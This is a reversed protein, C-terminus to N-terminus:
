LGEGKEQKKIEQIKDPYKTKLYGNVQDKSKEDMQDYRAKLNKKIEEQKKPDGAASMYQIAQAAIGKQDLVMGAMGPIGVSPKVPRHLPDGQLISSIAAIGFGAGVCMAAVVIYLPLNMEQIWHSLM